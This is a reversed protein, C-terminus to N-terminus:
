VGFFNRSTFVTTWTEFQRPLIVSYTMLLLAFAIGFAALRKRFALAGAVLATQAVVIGINGPSKLDTFTFSRVDVGAWVMLAYLTLGIFLGFSALHLVTTRGAAPQPNRISRFFPVVAVLIPYELATKFVAPSVIAAFVGGVVGGLAVTFYFETLYKTAPRHDAL